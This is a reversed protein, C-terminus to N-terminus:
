SIPGFDRPPPLAPQRDPAIPLGSQLLEAQTSVGAGAEIATHGEAM